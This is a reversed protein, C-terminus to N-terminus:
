EGSFISSQYQMNSMYTELRTFQSWYREMENEYKTQLSDILKQMSNIQNFMSSKKETTTGEIGAVSALYGEKKPTTSIAADIVSDVKAAVGNTTNTFLASIKDGYNEIAADLKDEDITLQNSKNGGNKYGGGNILGGITIGMDQLGFGDVRTTLMASTIKSAFSSLYNDHYLLGKKAEANWKEIEEPKMEEEQEDTLPDYYSGSKKPRSTNVEDYVGKIMENYAEVFKVITDKIASNDKKTEVTIEEVGEESSDFNGLKSININTGDFTYDNSASTYTTYNEGDASVTITGNQGYLKKNSLDEDTNLLSNLLNGRTQKIEIKGATGTDTSEIKFGGSMSSFTVRAGLNDESNITNVIDGISTSREFTFNKGNISFEFLADDSLATNFNASGISSNSSLMSTATNALGVAESNYKISFTHKIGDNLNNFVLTSTGEKFEFGKDDTKVDKFTKNAAELFNAKAKESDSSGTFVVNRTTGNFTMEVTYEKGDKNNSFDLKIEDAAISGTSKIQAAKAATAKSIHYTAPTAGSNASAVLKDNSSEAKYKSMVGYSKVCNKGNWDLYESRFDSINKIHTRYSEQQWQLTQLKQKKANLRNKTNAAMSKVLQETDLGSILGSMRNNSWLSSTSSTSSSSM